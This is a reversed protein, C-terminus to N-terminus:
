ASSAIVHYLHFVEDAADQVGVHTSCLACEVPHFVEQEKGGGDEGRDEAGRRRKQNRRGGAKM